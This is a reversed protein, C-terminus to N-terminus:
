ECSETGPREKESKGDGGPNMFVVYHVLQNGRKCM